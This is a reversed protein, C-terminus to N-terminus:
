LSELYPCNYKKIYLLSTLDNSNTNEEKLYFLPYSGAPRSLGAPVTLDASKKQSM